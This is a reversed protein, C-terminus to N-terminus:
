LTSLFRSANLALMHRGSAEVLVKPASVLGNLKQALGERAFRGGMRRKYLWTDRLHIKQVEQVEADGSVRQNVGCIM